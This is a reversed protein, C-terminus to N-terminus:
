NSVSGNEDLSTVRNVSPEKKLRMSFHLVTGTVAGQLLGSLGCALVIIVVNYFVSSTYSFLLLALYIINFSVMWGIVNAIIWMVAKHYFKRLIFFQVVSIIAGFSGGAAATYLISYYNDIFNLSSLFSIFVVSPPLILLWGIVSAIVTLAIWRGPRFDVVLRSISKWQVYGIVIGEMAGAMVLISFFLFPTQSLATDSFGVFLLRGITAAAGIGLIEGFSYKLIWQNWFKQDTKM